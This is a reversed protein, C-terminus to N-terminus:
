AMAEVLRSGFRTNHTFLQVHHTFRRGVLAPALPDTLSYVLLGAWESSPQAGYSLRPQPMVVLHEGVVVASQALAGRYIPNNSEYDPGGGNGTSGGSAGTFFNETSDYLPPAGDTKKTAPEGCSAVAAVWLLLPGGAAVFRLDVM